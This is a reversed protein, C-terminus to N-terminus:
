DQGVDRNEGLTLDEAMSKRLEAKRYENLLVPYLIGFIITGLLGTYGFGYWVGRPQGFLYAIIGIVLLILSLAILFIIVGLVLKRAKGKPVFLGALAGTLGGLGGMTGGLIGGLIGPDIWPENMFIRRRM